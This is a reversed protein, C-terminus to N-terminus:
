KDVVTTETVTVQVALKTAIWTAWQPDPVDFWVQISKKPNYRELKRKVKHQCTWNKGFWARAEHMVEYWQNTSSVHVWFRHLAPTTTKLPDIITSM